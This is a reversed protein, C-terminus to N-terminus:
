ARDLKGWTNRVWMWDGRCQGDLEHFQPVESQSTCKLHLVKSGLSSMGWEWSKAQHLFKEPTVCFTLLGPNLIWELSEWQCNNFAVKSHGNCAWAGSNPLCSNIVSLIWQAVTQPVNWCISVQNCDWPRLRPSSPYEEITRLHESGYGTRAVNQWFGELM